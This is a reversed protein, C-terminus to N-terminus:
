SASNAVVKGSPSLCFGANKGGILRSVLQVESPQRSPQKRPADLAIATAIALRCAPLSAERPRAFLNARREIWQHGNSCFQISHGALCFILPPWHQLPAAQRMAELATLHAAIHARYRGYRQRPKSARWSLRSCLRAAVRQSNILLDRRWRRLKADSHAPM